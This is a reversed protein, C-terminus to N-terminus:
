WRVKIRKQTYELGTLLDEISNATNTYITYITYGVYPKMNEVNEAGFTVAIIGVFLM